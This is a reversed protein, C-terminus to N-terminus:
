RRTRPHTPLILPPRPRQNFNFDRRLDGLGPANERVTPRPDPRGDTRPNLRRGGLFDDEVFKAFADFSLQHHDIYGRRAYPSIVIGPVRFGYGNVDVMPPKVHDYFGGWDDWTLVIATSNWDPGKMVANILNTVYAQGTAINAPPHDSERQDPVVWSVAPLTGAHADAVFRSVDQINGLQGDHKVTSFSPLPNWISPTGVTLRAGAGCNAGGDSCDPQGGQAIFYGWSIGNRHLLYTLDTWAYRDPVPQQRAAALQRLCLPLAQAAQPSRRLPFGLPGRPV